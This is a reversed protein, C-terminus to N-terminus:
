ANWTIADAIVPAAMSTERTWPFYWTLTTAWVSAPVRGGIEVWHLHERHVAWLPRRSSRLIIAESRMEEIPDPELTEYLFALSM